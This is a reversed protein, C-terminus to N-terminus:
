IVAKWIPLFPLPIGNKELAPEIIGRYRNVDRMLIVIDRCRAGSRLLELVHGAAAEAEAYPTACVEATVSGDNPLPEKTGTDPNWLEESLRVLAPTTARRNKGLTQECPKGCLLAAHRLVDLSRRVSEGDLAESDPASLPITVTTDEAQAFIRGIVKQEMATFSTFSDIYVHTGAFFDHESLVRYLRSLDDASDSYQEATLRDFSAYILALDRLRAALPSGSELKAAAHELMDPTIGCSKCEGIGSLMLDALSPDSEALTGYSELMPALERLNKWMLLSRIPRTMYRYSLGGYERCVRNYLRSFSLVELVLQSAPPLTHLTLREASVAEQDPVILFTHIGNETDKRIREMVETTKGSGCAGYLFTIM